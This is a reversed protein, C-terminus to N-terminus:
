GKLLRIGIKDIINSGFINTVNTPLVTNFSSLNTNSPKTKEGEPLPVSPIEQDLKALLDKVKEKNNIAENIERTRADLYKQQLKDWKQKDIINNREKILKEKESSLKKDLQELRLKEQKLVKANNLLISEYNDLENQKDIITQSLHSIIAFQKIIDSKVKNLEKYKDNIDNDTKQKKSKLENIQDIITQEKKKITAEYKKFEKIKEDLRYKLYRSFEPYERAMKVTEKLENFNEKSLIEKLRKLARIIKEDSSLNEKSPEAM